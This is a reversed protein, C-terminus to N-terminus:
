WRAGSHSESADHCSLTGMGPLPMLAEPSSTLGLVLVSIMPFIAVHGIRGVSWVMGGCVILGDVRRGVTAQDDRSALQGPGLLFAQLPFAQPEPFVPPPLVLPLPPIKRLSLCPGPKLLWGWAYVGGKQNKKAVRCGIKRQEFKV